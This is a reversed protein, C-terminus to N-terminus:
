VCSALLYSPVGGGVRKIVIRFVYDVGCDWLDPVYGCSIQIRRLECVCVCVVYDEPIWCKFGVCVIYLMCKRMRGCICRM